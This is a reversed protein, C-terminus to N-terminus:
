EMPMLFEQFRKGPPPPAENLAKEAKVIKEKVEQSALETGDELIRPTILVVLESKGNTDSTRRFLAGLLPISGLVPVKNRTQTKSDEILGGIFATEGNKVLLRTTVTTTKVVPIGGAEIRASNISPEVYLLINNDDDIYPTIELITGTDIFEISEQSIGDSVTNVKYGQQGGVQVKATEGHLAVIKPTSLTNIHTKTQLADLAASFQHNTGAGTLVNGFIGTGTAPVPSVPAVDPLIASSFGGTGIRVDGMIQEWNVGFAMDDTLEVELIKAEIIM